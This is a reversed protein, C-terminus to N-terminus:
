SDINFIIRPITKHKGPLRSNKIRAIKKKSCNQQNMKRKGGQKGKRNGMENMWDSESASACDQESDTFLEGDMEQPVILM